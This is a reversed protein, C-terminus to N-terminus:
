SDPNFWSDPNFGFLQPDSLFCLPPAPWLDHFTWGLLWLDLRDSSQDGAGGGTMPVGLWMAENRRQTPKDPDSTAHLIAHDLSSQMDELRMGGSILWQLLAPPWFWGFLLTCLSEFWRGVEPQTFLNRQIFVSQSLPLSNQTKKNIRRVNRQM